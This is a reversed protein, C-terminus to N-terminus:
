AERCVQVLNQSLKPGLKSEVKKLKKTMKGKELFTSVVIKLTNEAAPQM